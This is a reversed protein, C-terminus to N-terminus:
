TIPAHHIGQRWPAIFSAAPQSLGRPAALASQDPPTRIPYGPGILIPGGRPKAGRPAIGASTFCRLLRLLPFRFRNRRYRRAFASCGLGRRKRRPTSLVAAHARRRSPRAAPFGGRLPHFARPRFGACGRAADQTARCVHFAARIRASWRGLSFVEQRGITFSYRSPFTFLVATLPTFCCRFDHARM